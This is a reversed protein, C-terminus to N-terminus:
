GILVTYFLNLKAVRDATVRSFETCVSANNIPYFVM